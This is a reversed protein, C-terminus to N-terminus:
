FAVGDLVISTNITVIGRKLRRQTTPQHPGSIQNDSNKGKDYIAGYLITTLHETVPLLNTEKWILSPMACGTVFRLFENQTRQLLQWNTFWLQPAFITAPYYCITAGMVKHTSSEESLTKSLIVELLKTLVLVKAIAVDLSASGEKNKASLKFLSETSIARYYRM